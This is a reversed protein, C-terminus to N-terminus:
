LFMVRRRRWTYWELISGRLCTPCSLRKKNQSHIQLPLQAEYGLFLIGSFIKIVSCIPLRPWGLVEMCDRLGLLASVFQKHVFLLSGGISSRNEKSKDGLNRDYRQPSSAQRPQLPSM